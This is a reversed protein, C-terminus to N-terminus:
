HGPGTEVVVTIDAPGTAAFTVTVVFQDGARLDRRLGDLRLHLGGPRMPVPRGPLLDVTGRQAATPGEGDALFARSAVASRAGTLRDPKTGRNVLPFYVETTTGSTAPKGWAHGVHIQGHRLDHAQVAPAALVLALLGFGGRFARRSWAVAPRPLRRLVKGKGEDTRM